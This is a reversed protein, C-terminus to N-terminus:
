LNSFFKKIRDAAAALNTEQTLGTAKRPKFSHEGDKLWYLQIASSLSYTSVELKSGFPDREGQCILTPTRISQLQETRLNDPKGPPHFPYGLCVLGAVGSEDAILSAMRGGMSKGGIVTRDRATGSEELHVIVTRWTDLLKPQTNPPRRKGDRTKAQMYPFEFRVVRLGSASLSEAFWSMFNSNMGQGAGHALVLTWHAGEPGDILLQNEGSMEIEKNGPAQGVLLVRSIVPKGMM